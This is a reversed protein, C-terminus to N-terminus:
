WFNSKETLKNLVHHRKERGVLGTRCFQLMISIQSIKQLNQHQEQIRHCFHHNSCPIHRPAAGSLVFGHPNQRCPSNHWWFLQSTVTNLYCWIVQYQHRLVILRKAVIPTTIKFSQFCPHYEHTFASINEEPLKEKFESPQSLLPSKKVQLEWPKSCILQTTESINDCHKGSPLIM